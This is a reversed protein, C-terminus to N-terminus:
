TARWKELYKFIKEETVKGIGPIKRFDSMELVLEMLSVGVRLLSERGPFDEPLNTFIDEPLPQEIIVKKVPDYECGYGREIYERAKEEIVWSYHKVSYTTNPPIEKFYVCIYGDHM